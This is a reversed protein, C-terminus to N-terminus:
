AIDDLYKRIGEDTTIVSGAVGFLFAFMLDYGDLQSETSYKGYASAFSFHNKEVVREFAIFEDPTEIIYDQPM